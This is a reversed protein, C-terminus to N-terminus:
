TIRKCSLRQVSGHKKFAISEIGAKCRCFIYMGAYAFGGKWFGVCERM